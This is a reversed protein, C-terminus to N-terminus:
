TRRGLPLRILEIGQSSFLQRFSNCYKTDRDIILYRMDCLQGHECDFANRTMQLMWAGNPSITLGLVQIARDALNIVFLVHQTVLGNGTWVEVSLFDSAAM